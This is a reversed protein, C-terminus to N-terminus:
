QKQSEGTLPPLFPENEHNPNLTLFESEIENKPMLLNEHGNAIINMLARKRGREQIGECVDPTTKM